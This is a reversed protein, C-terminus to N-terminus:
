NKLKQRILTIKKEIEYIENSFNSIEKPISKYLELVYEYRELVRNYKRFKEEKEAKEMLLTIKEMKKLVNPSLVKSEAQQKNDYRQKEVMVKDVQRQFDLEGKTKLVTDEKSFEVLNKLQFIRKDIMGVKGQYGLKTYIDKAEELLSIALIFNKKNFEEKSRRELNEAEKELENFPGPM